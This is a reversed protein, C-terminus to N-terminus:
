DLISNWRSAMNGWYYGAGKQIAANRMSEYDRQSLRLASEIGEAIGNEPCIFGDIKDTIIEKPGPHNTAIPICGCAMAEIIVMGFLEEWSDTRQSNLLLFSNAEYLPILNSFGSIYGLYRINSYHQEYQMVLEKLEGNGVLTFHIDNGKQAFYDLLERIGKNACLRGVYIFCKDKPRNEIPYVKEIYSHNVISIRDFTSYGNKVLEDRTKTSVAFIHKVKSNTFHKWVRLVRKSVFASHAMRTGDWCSYSTHYYLQHNRLILLLPLLRWNFPAIGLVVKKNRTFLMRVLFFLNRFLSRRQRLSPVVYYKLQGGNNEVLYRLAYYHSPTYYEHLIYVEKESM